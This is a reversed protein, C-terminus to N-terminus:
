PRNAVHALVQLAYSLTADDGLAAGQTKLGGFEANGFHARLHEALETLRTADHGAIPSATPSAMLAGYLIAAEKYHGTRHLADVLTRVTIWLQSWAGIQQWHTILWAYRGLAGAPEDSRAEVSLASTLAVGLLFRSGAREAEAVARRLMPLAEVPRSHLRAEGAFYHAWGLASPNAASAMKRLLADAHQIAQETQGRYALSLVIGGMDNTLTVTDSAAEALPIAARYANLALDYQGAIIRADGLADLAWRTAPSREGGLEVGRTALSIARNADGQHWAGVAATALAGVLAPHKTDGFQEVAEAAWGSVEAPAGAFAWPYCASALRLAQEARQNDLLWRHAGRLNGLEDGLRKAWSREEPGILGHSAAEVLSVYFAAHCDRTAEYRSLNHLEHEAFARVPELMTWRTASGTKAAAVLSHETLEDLSHGVEDPDRDEGALATAAELTWGGAFVAMRGFLDREAPDLLDCSWAVVAHLSQHRSARQREGQLQGFHARLETLIDAPTRAAIRAAAMEIGLPLGGLLRCLEAVEAQVPKLRFTPDAACARDTFLQIALGTPEDGTPVALPEVPQRQEGPVRIRERSTALIRTHETGDLIGSVLEAIGDLVHECNDLVVLTRRPRLFAVIRDLLRDGAMPDVGLISAVTSDVSGGPMLTTLDCFWVGDPCTSALPHAVHIAVRTKGVGGPGTLTVLRGPSGTLHEITSAILTERGLLLSGPPIPLPPSALQRPGGALIEQHLRRLDESPELGLGDALSSRFAEYVRLAEGHRGAKALSEMHLAVPREQFPLADALEGATAAAEGFRKLGLLAVVRRQVVDAREEELSTIVPRLAACDLDALPSGRWLALAEELVALDGGRERARSVLFRFRTADVLDPDAFRYGTPTTAISAVPGLRRRLRSVQSQLAGVPDEPLNDGWLLEILTDTSVVEGARSCLGALLIRQRASALAVPTGDDGLVEIPGLLRVEM